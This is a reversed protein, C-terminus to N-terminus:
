ELSGTSGFSPDSKSRKGAALWNRTGVSGMAPLGVEKAEVKTAAAFGFKMFTLM